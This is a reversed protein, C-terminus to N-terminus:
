HAVHFFAFGVVALMAIIYARLGWFALTLWGSVQIRAVPPLSRDWGERRIIEEIQSDSYEHLKRM